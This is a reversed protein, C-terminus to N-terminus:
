KSQTDTREDSPSDQQTDEDQSSETPQPVAPSYYTSWDNKQTTNQKKTQKRVRIRGFYAVIILILVLPWNGILFLLAGKVFHVFSYTGEIFSHKADSLFTISQPMNSLTHVERLSLEITSLNILSDYKNLTGQLSDIETQVDALASELQVIDEIKTAKELLALLRDRKTIQAKLRTEQDFYHESVDDLSEQKDTITCLEGTQKLFATYHEKPIRLTYSISRSGIQGYLNSYEIFGSFQKVLAEIDTMAKPFDTTEATLDATYILKTNLVQTPGSPTEEDDTMSNQEASTNESFGTNMTHTEKSPASDASSSSCATLLAAMLVWCILLAQPKQKKM